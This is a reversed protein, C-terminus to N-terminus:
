ATQLHEQYNFTYDITQVSQLNRDSIFASLIQDPSPLNLMQMGFEIANTYGASLNIGQTRIIDWNKGEINIVEKRTTEKSINFVCGNNPYASSVDLDAVYPYINTSMMPNEAIVKLGQRTRLEAPLTIIIDSLPITLADLDSKLKNSTVGYVRNANLCEFHMKDAYRRPQSKFNAFDSSDSFIPVSYSLDATEDDLEEMSICDFVNYVVYELPYKSQMFIHWDAKELHDAEKFNLKRIGLVKNLINDLSYSREAGDQIRLRQYVCMADIFYTSAPTYLTHWQEAPKLSMVKGSETKKKNPGQKYRYFKYEDEVSPDSYVHAPNIGKDILTKEMLPIDFNMNWIATWDPKWEHIKKLCNLVVQADDEVLEVEWTINRKKVYSGLHENLKKHLREIVGTYGEFFDKDIATYVRDGFSLTAMNIKGHGKVMDKETDFAARTYPTILNPFQTMYRKKILATSLIDAGYLYPSDFLTRPDGNFGPMGLARAISQSLKSQTSEYRTLKDLDEWERHQTYNRYAPKAVWFPRKYNYIKRTNPLTRGDKLHVVEKIFHMDDGNWKSPCYVAFRCEYGLIDEKSYKTEQSM